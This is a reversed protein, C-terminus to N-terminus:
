FKMDFRGERVKVKDGVANIADFWFAGAVIRKQHDLRTIRLEGKLPSSVSYEELGVPAKQFYDGFAKGEIYPTTLPYVGGEMIELAYTGLSVMPKNQDELDSASVKFFWGKVPNYSQFLYM